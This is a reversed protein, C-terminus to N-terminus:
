TLRSLMDDTGVAESWRDEGLVYPLAFTQFAIVAVLGHGQLSKFPESKPTRFDTGSLWFPM